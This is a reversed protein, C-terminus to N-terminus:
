LAYGLINKQFKTLQNDNWNKDCLETSGHANFAPPIINKNITTLQNKIYEVNISTKPIFVIYIVERTDIGALKTCTDHPLRNDWLVLSGKKANVPQCEQELKTHCRSDLRFFEGGKSINENNLSLNNKFYLDSKKHFNKVVRLGGSESGYHDTLTLFGQIPRWKKLGGNKLLYPDFPNRDIHLKLGGEMKICDPLRYCIRDIYAYIDEFPGYIHEFNPVDSPSFTQQMLKKVCEYIKPNTQVDIKWKNYFIKSTPAKMRVSNFPEIQKQIIANHDIGLEFLQTHLQKRIHDVEEENFIDEIVTIGCEIFEDIHEQSIACDNITNMSTITNHTM